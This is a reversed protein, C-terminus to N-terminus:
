HFSGTVSDPITGAVNQSTAYYGGEAGGRERVFLFLVIRIGKRYVNYM